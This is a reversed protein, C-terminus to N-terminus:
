GDWSREDMDSKRSWFSTKCRSLGFGDKIKGDKQDPEDSPELWLNRYVNFELRIIDANQLEYDEDKSDRAKMKRYDRWTKKDLTFVEWYKLHFQEMPDCLSPLRPANLRDQSHDGSNESVSIHSAIFTPDINFQYGLAEIVEPLLDEVIFLRRHLSGQHSQHFEDLFHDLSPRSSFDFIKISKIHNNIQVDFDVVAIRCRYRHPISMFNNLYELGPNGRCLDRIQQHYPGKVTDPSNYHM